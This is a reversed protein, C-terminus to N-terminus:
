KGGARGSRRQPFATADAETQRSSTDGAGPQVEGARFAVLERWVSAHRCQLDKARNSWYNAFNLPQRCQFVRCDLWFWNPKWNKWLSLEQYFNASENEYAWSLFLLHFFYGHMTELASHPQDVIKPWLIGACTLRNTEGFSKSVSLGRPTKQDAEAYDLPL